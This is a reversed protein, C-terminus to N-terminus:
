SIYCTEHEPWKKGLYTGRVTSDSISIQSTINADLFNLLIYIAKKVYKVCKQSQNKYIFIFIHM